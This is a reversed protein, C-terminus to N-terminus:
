VRFRGSGEQERPDHSAADPDQVRHPQDGQDHADLRDLWGPASSLWFGLLMRLFRTKEFDEQGELSYVAVESGCRALLTEFLIGAVENTNRPDVDVLSSLGVQEALAFYDGQAIALVEELTFETETVFKM